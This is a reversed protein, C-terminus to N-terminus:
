GPRSSAGGQRLAVVRARYLEFLRAGGVSLAAGVVVAPARGSTLAWGLLAGAVAPLAASRPWVASGRGRWEAIGYGLATLGTAAALWELVRERNPVTGLGALAEAGIRAALWPLTALLVVAVALPEVRRERGGWRSWWRDGILCGVLALVAALLARQPALAVGPLLAAVTWGSLMLWLVGRPQDEHGPNSRGAGAIAVGGSALLALMPLQRTSTLGEVWILPILLWCLGILPLDLLLRGVLGESGIRQRVSQAVLAGIGAGLVNAVVDSLTTWRGPIFLQTAEVAGSCLAEIVIIRGVGLRRQLLFGLPLFLAINLLIDAVAEGGGPILLVRATSAPGLRFPALVIVAVVAVLYGLLLRDLSRPSADGRAGSM